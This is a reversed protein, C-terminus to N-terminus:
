RTQGSPDGKANAFTRPGTWQKPTERYRTPNRVATLENAGHCPRDRGTAEGTTTEYSFTYADHSPTRSQSGEDHKGLQPPQDYREEGCSRDIISKEDDRGDWESSHQTECLGVITATKKGLTSRLTRKREGATDGNGSRTTEDSADPEQPKPGRHRECHNQLEQKKREVRMDMAKRSNTGM